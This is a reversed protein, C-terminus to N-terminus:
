AEKGQPEEVHEAIPERAIGRYVEAVDEPSLEVPFNALRELNVTGTLHAVDDNSLTTSRATGALEVISEFAELGSSPGRSTEQALSGEIEALKEALEPDSSARKALIRWCGPMCMAVAHGHPLGKLTTLGYSLAHPATTTTLNIAKGALNSATMISRAAAADGELYSGADRAIRRMAEASLPRSADCSRVSWHSEIAQCLADLLTCRRQYDPLTSLLRADLVAADPLLRESSISRKTGNVYVTAFRTSESGTGATTPVAIHPVDIRPSPLDPHTGLELPDPAGLLAKVCKALDIASGGGISVLGDCRQARFSRFAEVAQDYTPNPSFGDFAAAHDLDDLYARIPGSSRARPGCVVLPRGIGHLSLLEKWTREGSEDADRLILRCGPDLAEYVPQQEYDFLKVCTEAHLLDEPTDVEGVFCGEYSLAEVNMLPFVKNAAEEAYVDLAGRQVFREVEDLWLGLSRESLRYFPQFAYCDPGSADVSVHEIRGNLVRAKFDKRPPLAARNVAGLSEFPSLLARRAFSRDFVLDGHLLLVDNGRLLNRALWFSYLYNTDAYRDNSVFSFSCGRAQFPTAAERIQDSFPGTTVVFDRVGLDSLIRVQRAFISEGNIAAMCKPRKAAISGLRSGLGSNFILAKM